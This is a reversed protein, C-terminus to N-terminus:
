SLELRACACCACDHLAIAHPLSLKSADHFTCALWGALWEHMCLWAWMLGVPLAMQMVYFFYFNYSSGIFCQPATISVGINLTDAWGLAQHTGNPWTVDYDRLLSM